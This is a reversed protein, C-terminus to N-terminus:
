DARFIQLSLETADIPTVGDVDFVSVEVYDTQRDTVEAKGPRAAPTCGYSADPMPEAFFVWYVGPSLTFAFAIGAAASLSAVEGADMTLLVTMLKPVPPAMLPAPAEYAAIVGGAAQWAMLVARIQSPAEALTPIFIEKGDILAKISGDAQYSASSVAM